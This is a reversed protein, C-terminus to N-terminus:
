SFPYCQRKPMVCQLNVSGLTTHVYSLCEPFWPAWVAPKAPDQSVAPSQLRARWTEVAGPTPNTPIFCLSSDLNGSSIDIIESICIVGGYHCFASLRTSSRLLPSLSFAPQLCHILFCLRSKASLPGELWLQSKELLWTHIDSKSWLSPEARFFPHKWITTNSSVRSLGKSHLSILGTLGLSFWGQINM